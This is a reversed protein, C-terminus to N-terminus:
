FNQEYYMTRWGRMSLDVVQGSPESASFAPHFIITQRRRKHKLPLTKSEVGKVALVLRLGVSKEDTVSLGEELHSRTGAERQEGDSLREEKQIEGM